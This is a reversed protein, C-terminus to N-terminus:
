AQIKGSKLVSNTTNVSDCLEQEGYGFEAAWIDSFIDVLWEKLVLCLMGM